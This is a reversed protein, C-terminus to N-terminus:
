GVAPAPLEMRRHVGALAGLWRDAKVIDESADPEPVASRLEELRARYQRLDAAYGAEALSLTTRLELMIVDQRAAARLAREFAGAAEDVAQPRARGMTTGVLRWVEPQWNYIGLRELEGQVELLEHLAREHEGVENLIEALMCIYCPTDEDSGIERQRQYGQEFLKLGAVPEGSRAMAWGLFLQGRARHEQMGRDEALAIIREALARTQETERRYYRHTLAIDLAHTTTGAHDLTEAWALARREAEIAGRLEGQMWLILSLEGLGCVKADHNGFLWPRKVCDPREYVALGEHIHERCGDFDGEHFTRAWNCHHAHLLM